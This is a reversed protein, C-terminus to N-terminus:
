RKGCYIREKLKNINKRSIISTAYLFAFHFQLLSSPYSVMTLDVVLMCTFVILIQIDLFYHFKKIRKILGKFIELYIFYYIIVGILGTDALLEMFNNEAWCEAYTNFYRFCDLGVGFIPYVKFIRWAEKLYLARSITSADAVSNQRFFYSLFAIFREGIVNYLVEVKFILFGLIFLIFSGIVTNKMLKIFSKSICIIYISISIMLFFIQKKSGTLLSFISFVLIFVIRLKTNKIAKKEYFLFAAILGIAFTIGTFNYSVANNHSLYVGVRETGWANIPVVILMRLCLLCGAIILYRVFKIRRENNTVYLLITIGTMTRLCLAILISLVMDSYISTFIGFAGWLIFFSKYKMYKYVDVNVKLCHNKLYYLCSMGFALVQSFIVLSGWDNFAIIMICLQLISIDLLNIKKIKM